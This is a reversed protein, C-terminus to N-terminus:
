AAEMWDFVRDLQELTIIGYQWLVMPILNDPTDTRKRALAIAEESVAMDQRLFQILRNPESVAHPAVTQSANTQSANTQLANTQLANTQSANTCNTLNRPTM